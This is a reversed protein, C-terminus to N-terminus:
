YKIIYNVYVNIPRIETSTKLNNAANKPSLSNGTYNALNVSVSHTHAGTGNLGQGATGGIQSLTGSGNSGWLDTTGARQDGGYGGSRVPHTHSGSSAISFPESPHDHDIGHIHVIEAQDEVSGVNDGSVGGPRSATRSARDPDRGIGGDVGRLFRGQYDPVNFHAGDATGHATGIAAFLLPYDTRIISDGNCWLWGAPLANGAFAMVSGAPVGNAANLAFAVSTLKQRQSMEPDSAGVKMGLYVNGSFKYKPLPGGYNNLAKPLDRGLVVSFQGNRLTVTYADCWFADGGADDPPMGPQEVLPDDNQYLCLRLNVSGDPLPNKNNDTLTGQYSLTAPEVQQAQAEMALAFGVVMAVALAIAKVQTRGSLGRTESGYRM